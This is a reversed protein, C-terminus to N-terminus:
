HGASPILTQYNYLADRRMVLRLADYIKKGDREGELFFQFVVTDVLEWHGTAYNRVDLNPFQVAMQLPRFRYEWEAADSEVVDADLVQGPMMVGYYLKVNELDEPWTLRIPQTGRPDVRTVPMLDTQLLRENNKAVACHWIRGDSTGVIDGTIEGYRVHVDILYNGPQDMPIKKTARVIGLRNAKGEVIVIEGDPKQVKWSVEAEVAPFIMGGLALVEGVELTDYPDTALFLYHERGNFTVLPREGPAQIATTEGDSPAVAIAASYADYHNNGTLHDKVVAGAQIRYVDGPLDGNFGTNFHYGFRNPSAMWYMGVTESQMITTMVPFGPRVVGLYIYADVQNNEPLAYPHWRGDGVPMVPIEDSRAEDAVFWASADASIQVVNELYIWRNEAQQLLPPPMETPRAYAKQLRAALAPDQYAVSLHPEVLSENYGNSPIYLTDSPDYPAFPDPLPSGRFPMFPSTLDPRKIFKKVGGYYSQDLKLDYPLTRTGHLVMTREHPAVVGASTQRGMWVQGHGDVFRADIRSIYEGPETFRIAPTDYPIFHGFRNAGGSGVWHQHRQPDSNPYYDVTVKVEAPFPPNVNVKAPYADGVLFPSGPKCSTSFSLPYAVHVTYTGGGHFKRGFDDELYGNMVITYTGTRSMDVYFGNEEFQPGDEQLGLFHRTGLEQQGGPGDIRCSVEGRDFRLYNRTRLPVVEMGGDIPPMASYPFITPFGPRLLYSNPPLVLEDGFGSRHCIGVHGQEERPLTGVQGRFMVQSLITWPLRPEAPKGVKVLPLVQEDPTNANDGYNDLLVPQAVDKIKVFVLLRPQYHGIPTDSPLSVELRGRLRHIRNIVGEIPFREVAEFPSGDKGHLLKMRPWGDFNEVPLGTTTFNASIAMSLAGPRYYGNRDHKLQGLVAVIIETFEGFKEQHRTLDVKTEYNFSWTGGPQTELGPQVDTVTAQWPFPPRKANFHFAGLDAEDGACGALMALAVLLPAWWRLMRNVM